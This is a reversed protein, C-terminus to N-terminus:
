PSQHRPGSAPGPGDHVLGRLLAAARDATYAASRAVAAAVPPNLPLGDLLQDLERLHGPDLAAHGALTRFASAPLGTLAPLRDVMDARPPCGELVAIYGLLCVPHYHRIWYYQAGALAAIDEAPARALLAGPERAGLATLDELLWDDHGQEEEIHTRLYRALPEACPDRAPLHGCRDVAAEMLPVSARVLGHMTGLYAPYRERLGPATWLTQAASQVAPLTLWLVTRVLTAATM